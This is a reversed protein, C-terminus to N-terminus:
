REGSGRETGHQVCHPHGASARAALVTRPPVWMYGCGCAVARVKTLLPSEAFGGAVIIFTIPPAGSADNSELMAGIKDVTAKICPRFFGRVIDGPITLARSRSVYALADLGTRASGTNYAAIKASIPFPPATSEGDSDVASGGARRLADLLTGIKITVADTDGDSGAAPASGVHQTTTSALVVCFARVLTRLM